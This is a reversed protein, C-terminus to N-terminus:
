RTIDNHYRRSLPWKVAVIESRNSLIQYINSVQKVPFLSQPRKVRATQYIALAKRVRQLFILRMQSESFLTVLQPLFTLTKWANGSRVSANNITFNFIKIVKVCLHNHIFYNQESEVYKSMKKEKDLHYWSCNVYYFIWFYIAGNIKILM